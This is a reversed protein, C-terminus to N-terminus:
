CVRSTQQHSMPRHLPHARSWARGEAEETIGAESKFAHTGAGMPRPDLERAAAQSQGTTHAGVQQRARPVRCSCGEGPSGTQVNRTGEAAVSCVKLAPQRCLGDRDGGGAPTEIEQRDECLRCSRRSLGAAAQRVHCSSRGGWSSRGRPSGPLRPCMTAM